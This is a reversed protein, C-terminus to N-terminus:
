KSVLRVIPVGCDQTPLLYHLVAACERSLHLYSAINDGRARRQAVISVLPWLHWSCIDWCCCCATLSRYLVVLHCEQGPSSDGVPGLTPVGQIYIHHTSVHRLTTYPDPPKIVRVIPPHRGSITILLIFKTMIDHLISYCKTKLSICPKLFRNM